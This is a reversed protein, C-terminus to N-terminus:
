RIESESKAFRQGDEFEVIFLAKGENTIGCHFLIKAKKYQIEIVYGRGKQVSVKRTALVSIPTEIELKTHVRYKEFDIM